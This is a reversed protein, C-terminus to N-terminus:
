FLGMKPALWLDVNNCLTSCYLLMCITLVIQPAHSPKDTLNLSYTVDYVCYLTGPTRCSMSMIASLMCKVMFSWASSMLQVLTKVAQWYLMSMDDGQLELQLTTVLVWLALHATVLKTRCFLSTRLNWWDGYIGGYSVGMPQSPWRKRARRLNCGRLIMSRTGTHLM